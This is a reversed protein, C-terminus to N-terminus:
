GAVTAAHRWANDLLTTAVGPEATFEYNGMALVWSGSPRTAITM